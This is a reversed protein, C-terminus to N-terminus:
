FKRYRDILDNNINAFLSINKNYPCFLKFTKPQWCRKQSNTLNVSFINCHM